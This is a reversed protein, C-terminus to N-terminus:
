CCGEKCSNGKAHKHGHDHNHDHACDGSVESGCESSCGDCSGSCTKEVADYGLKKLEKKLTEKNTKTNDYKIEASQEELSVELDKIGKIYPIKAEAKKVCEACHLSITFTVESIKKSKKEKASLTLAAFTAVAVLLIRLTKM